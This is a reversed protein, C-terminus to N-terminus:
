KWGTCSMWIAVRMLRACYWYVSVPVLAASTLRHASRSASFSCVEGIM